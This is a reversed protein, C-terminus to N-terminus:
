TRPDHQSCYAVTEGDEETVYWTTQAGCSKCNMNEDQKRMIGGMIPAPTSKPKKDEFTFRFTREKSIAAKFETAANWLALAAVCMAITWLTTCVIDLAILWTPM